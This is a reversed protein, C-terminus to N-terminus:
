HRVTSDELTFGKIVGNPPLHIGTREIQSKKIDNLMMRAGWLAVQQFALLLVLLSIIIAAANRFAQIWAKKTRQKM